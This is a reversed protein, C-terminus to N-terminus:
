EACAIVCSKPTRIWGGNCWCLNPAVYGGNIEKQEIKSVEKAGELKLINKLM